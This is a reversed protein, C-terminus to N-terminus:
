RVTSSSEAVTELASQAIHGVTTEILEGTEFDYMRIVAPDDALAVIEEREKGLAILTMVAYARIKPDPDTISDDLAETGETFASPQLAALRAVAWHAGREFPEKRLFTLLQATYEHALDPANALIEGIAEPANRILNGSEDNMSWFLRRIYDRVIEPNEGARRGILQGLMEIARWRLLEDAVFLLSVLVSAPNPVSEIWAILEVRERRALLELLHEKRTARRSRRNHGNQETM